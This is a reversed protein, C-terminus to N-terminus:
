RAHKDFWGDVENADATKSKLDGATVVRFRGGEFVVSDIKLGAEQLARVARKVETLRYKQDSRSMQLFSQTQHM